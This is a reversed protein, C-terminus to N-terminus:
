WRFWMVWVWSATQWVNQISCTSAMQNKIMTKMVDIAHKNERLAVPDIVGSMLERSQREYKRRRITLEALKDEEESLRANAASFEAKAQDELKLKINLIGQMKYIFKAM